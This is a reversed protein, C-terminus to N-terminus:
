DRIMRGECVKLATITLAVNPITITYRTLMTSWSNKWVLDRQYKVVTRHANSETQHHDSDGSQVQHEIEIEDFM